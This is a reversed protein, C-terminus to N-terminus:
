PNPPPPVVRIYPDITVTLGDDTKFKINYKEEIDKDTEVVEVQFRKRFFAKKPESKFIKGNSNGGNVWIQLIDQIGSPDELDWVIKSGSKVKIRHSSADVQGNIDRMLLDYGTGAANKIAKLFITFM